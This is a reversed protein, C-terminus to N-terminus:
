SDAQWHLPCPHSGQDLFTGCVSPCSFGRVAVVSGVIQLLFAVAPLGHVAVLSCNGCGPFLQECCRLGLVALDTLIKLLRCVSVLNTDVRGVDAM